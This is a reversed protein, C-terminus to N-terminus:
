FVIPVYLVGYFGGNKEGNIGEKNENKAIHSSVLGHKKSQIGFFFIDFLM